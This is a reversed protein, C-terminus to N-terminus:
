ELVQDKVGYHAHSRYLPKQTCHHVWSCLLDDPLPQYSCARRTPLSLDTSWPPPLPSCSACRAAATSPRHTSHCAGGTISSKALRNGFNPPVVRSQSQEHAPLGLSQQMKLGLMDTILHTEFVKQTDTAMHLYGIKGQAELHGMKAANQRTSGSAETVQASVTLHRM